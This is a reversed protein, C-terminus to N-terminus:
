GARLADCSSGISAKRCCYRAALEFFGACSHFRPGFAGNKELLDAPTM